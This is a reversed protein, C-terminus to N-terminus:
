LKNQIKQAFTMLCVALENNHLSWANKHLIEASEFPVQPYYRAGVHNATLSWIITLAVLGKRWYDSKWWTIIPTAALILASPFIETLMRTGFSKGGWWVQWFGVICIYILIGTGLAILFNDRARIAMAFGIASFIVFPSYVLLGRGPSVLVGALGEVPNSGFFERRVNFLNEAIVFPNDFYYWAYIRMLLVPIMFAISFKIFCNIGRQWPLYFLPLILLLVPARCEVALGLALGATVFLRNSKQQLLLLALGIFFLAPGHQWIGRSAVSYASTGFAYTLALISSSTIGYGLKILLLFIMGVSLATVISGTILSLYITDQTIDQAHGFYPAAWYTVTNIIGPLIPYLSVLRGNIEGISYPLADFRDILHDFTFGHGSLLSLPLLQNSTTDGSQGMLHFRGGATYNALVLAVLVM